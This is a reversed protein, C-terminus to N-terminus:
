ILGQDRLLQRYGRKISKSVAAGERIRKLIEPSVPPYPSTAEGCSIKRELERAPEVRAFHYYVFTRKTICRHEGAELVCAQDFRVGPKVSSFNVLLVNDGDKAPESIVVWTHDSYRFELVEGADM